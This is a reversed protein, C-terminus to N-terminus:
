VDGAPPGHESAEALEFAMPVHDLKAMPDPLPGHIGSSGLTSEGYSFAFGGWYTCPAM